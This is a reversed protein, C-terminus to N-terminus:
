EGLFVRHYVACLVADAPEDTTCVSAPVCCGPWRSPWCKVGMAASIATQSPRLRFTGSGPKLRCRHPGASSRSNRSCAAGARLDPDARAQVPAGRDGGDDRGGPRGAAPVQPHAAHEHARDPFFIPDPRQRDRGPQPARSAGRHDAGRATHGRTLRPHTQRADSRQFAGGLVRRIGLYASLLWSHRGWARASGAALLLSILLATLMLVLLLGLDILYATFRRFPGALPHDFVIREPTDLRVVADLPQEPFSSASAAGAVWTGGVDRVGSRATQNVRRATRPHKRGPLCGITRGTRTVISAGRITADRLATDFTLINSPPPTPPRNM